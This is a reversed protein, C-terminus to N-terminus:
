VFDDLGLGWGFLGGQPRRRVEMGQNQTATTRSRSHPLFGGFASTRELFLSTGQSVTSFIMVCKKVRVSMGFPGGIVRAM